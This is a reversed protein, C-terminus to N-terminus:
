YIYYFVCWIIVTPIYFVWAFYNPIANQKSLIESILMRISAITFLLAIGLIITQLM